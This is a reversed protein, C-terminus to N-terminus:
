DGIDDALEISLDIISRGCSVVVVILPKLNCFFSEVRAFPANVGHNSSGARALTPPTKRHWGAYSWTLIKHSDFENTRRGRSGVLVFDLVDRLEENLTHVFRHETRCTTLIRVGLM